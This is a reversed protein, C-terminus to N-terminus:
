SKKSKKKDRAAVDVAILSEKLLYGLYAEDRNLIGLRNNTMHMYSEAIAWIKQRDVPTKFVPDPRFTPPPILNDEKHLGELDDGIKKMRIIWDNLWEEEFKGGLAFIDWLAQDLDIINNIPEKNFDWKSKIKTDRQKKLLEMPVGESYGYSRSFWLRSVRIYFEITEDLDMGLAVTLGLHLRFAISLAMELDMGCNEEFLGLVLESSAQFQRESVPMVKPGGFRELEPEYASYQISNNPLEQEQGLSQSPHNKFYEHFYEDLRAKMKEKSSGTKQKLNLCINPGQRWCRLFYFGSIFGEKGAEKIFTPIAQTLFDEWPEAHFLSATIWLSNTETM